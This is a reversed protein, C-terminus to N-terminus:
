VNVTVSELPQLSLAVTETLIICHPPPTLPPPRGADNAAQGTVRVASMCPLMVVALIVLPPTSQSVHMAFSAAFLYVRSISLSVLTISAPLITGRSTVNRSDDAVGGVVSFVIM